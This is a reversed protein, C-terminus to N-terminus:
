LRRVSMHVCCLLVLTRDALFILGYHFKFSFIRLKIIRSPPWINVSINRFCISCDIALPPLKDNSEDPHYMEGGPFQLNGVSFQALHPKTKKEVFYNHHVTCYM